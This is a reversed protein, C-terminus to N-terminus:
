SVGGDGLCTWATSYFGKLTNYPPPKGEGLGTNVKAWVSQRLSVEGGRIEIFVVFMLMGVFLMRRKKSTSMEEGYLVYM